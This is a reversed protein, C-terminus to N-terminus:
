HVRREALRAFILGALGSVLGGAGTVALGLLVLTQRESATLGSVLQLMLSFLLGQLLGYLAGCLSAEAARLDRDRTRSYGLCGRAAVVSLVWTFPTLCVGGPSGRLHFVLVLALWPVFLAAAVGVVARHDLGSWFDRM